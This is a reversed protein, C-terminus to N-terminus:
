GSSRDFGHMRRSWQFAVFMGKIRPLLYLTICLFGLSLGVAMLWPEPRFTSYVILMVPAVLHGVIVITAWAPGDDARHHYLEEACVPCSRRVALYGKFLTGGGCAPCRRKWGRALAPRLPRDDVMSATPSTDDRM